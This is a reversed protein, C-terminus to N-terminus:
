TSARVAPLSRRAGQLRADRLPLGAYSIYMGQAASGAASRRRTRRGATPGRVRADPGLSPASTRSCSSATTASSAASTSPSPARHGQDAAGIAEYSSPRRTGRSSASCRSASSRRGATKFATPSARESPRTTTSSTSTRAAHAHKSWCDRGAPGQYDDTASSAPTTAVGTPYYIKPEGPDNWPAYHTLGPTRHERVSIM